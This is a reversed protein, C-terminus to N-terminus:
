RRSGTEILEALEIASYAWIEHQPEVHYVYFPTDIHKVIDIDNTALEFNNLNYLCYARWFYAQDLFYNNDLENSLSIVKSLYEVCESFQRLNLACEGAVFFDQLGATGMALLRQLLILAGRTDGARKIKRYELRAAILNESVHSDPMEDEREVPIRSKM